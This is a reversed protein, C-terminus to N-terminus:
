CRNEEVTTVPTRFAAAGALSSPEQSADVPGNSPAGSIDSISSASVSIGSAGAALGPVDSASAALGLGASTSAASGPDAPASAASGPDAPVSAALGLGASASAASGPDAPVSAASGLGDSTSAASGLDAPVSAASGPGDSPGPAVAPSSRRRRVPPLLLVLLGLLAALVPLGAPLVPTLLVALAAGTLAVLRTDRDGLSPLILAILGAPFAADLGFSDPDGTAGGLLVGLVVGLNWSIVLSIAVLWYVKRRAAPTQEALTFAVVEDTMLHAGILRDRWRTGLTDAVALGFPLHRANLLLGALVAAVPNGAAFLGVALFQAGGAFVVISMLPALWGPLGYAVTIAGFSAGVALTAAALAAVDRPRAQTRYLTSM